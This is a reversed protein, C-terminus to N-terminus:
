ASFIYIGNICSTIVTTSYYFIIQIVQVNTNDAVALYYNKTYGQVFQIQFSVKVCDEDIKIKCSEVNRDM